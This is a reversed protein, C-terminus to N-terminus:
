ASPLAPYALTVRPPLAPLPPIRPHYANAPPPVRPSLVPSGLQSVGCVAGTATPPLARAILSVGALTNCAATSGGGLSATRSPIPFRRPAGAGAACLRAIGPTPAGGGERGGGVNGPGQWWRRAGM